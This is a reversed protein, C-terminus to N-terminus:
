EVGNVTVLITYGVCDILTSFSFFSSSYVLKTTFFIAVLIAKNVTEVEAGISWGSRICIVSATGGLL